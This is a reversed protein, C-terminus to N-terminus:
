KQIESMTKQIVDVLAKMLASNGDAALNKFEGKIADIIANYDGGNKMASEIAKKLSAEDIEAKLAELTFNVEMNPDVKLGKQISELMGRIDGIQLGSGLAQLKEALSLIQQNAYSSELDIAQAYTKLLDNAQSQVTLQQTSLNKLAQATAEAAGMTLVTRDLTAIIPNGENKKQPDKVDHQEQAWKRLQAINDTMLPDGAKLNKDFAQRFQGLFGSGLVKDITNKQAGAGYSLMTAGAAAWRKGTEKKWEERSAKKKERDEDVKKNYKDVNGQQKKAEDIQKVVDERRKTKGAIDFKDYFERDEKSLGDRGKKSGTVKKHIKDYRDIQNDLGNKEGYLGNVDAVGHKAYYKGSKLDAQESRFDELAKAHAKKGAARAEKHSGGNKLVEKQAAKSATHAQTLGTAGGIKGAIGSAISAGGTAVGMAIGAAATIGTMAIDGVQKAMSKGAGMGDEAGFYGGIDKAFQEILLCGAIVLIVKFLSTMLGSSFDGPSAVASSDVFKIEIKLLVRIIIFFLNLSLVTGYASLVQGIFSSRWKGLGGENIPTMGIVVPSLVFLMACKYLRIVLGFCTFFLSKLVFIGACFILIFNIEGLNFYAIVHYYNSYNYGDACDIFGNTVKEREGDDLYFEKGDQDWPEQGSLMELLFNVAVGIPAIYGSMNPHPVLAYVTGVTNVEWGRYYADEAGTMFIIGSMTPNTGEEPKTAKDLLGLLQNAFVIGFVVLLPLLMLNALAKFAKQFLPGKANKAGETTYETKIVQFVTTVVLLFLGVICMALFAQQIEKNRILQILIDGSKGDLSLEAYMRNTNTPELGALARFLIEVFDILKLLFISYFYLTGAIFHKILTIVMTLIPTILWNILVEMIPKAVAQLVKGFVNGIAEALGLMNWM